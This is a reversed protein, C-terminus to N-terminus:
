CQGRELIAKARRIDDNSGHAILLSRHSRLENEYHLALSRSMGIAYLGAGFATLEGFIACNELVDILWGGLRGYVQVEGVEPLSFAQYGAEALSSPAVPGSRALSVKDEEFGADRLAIFASEAETGTNFVAITVNQESM